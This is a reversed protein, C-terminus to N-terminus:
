NKIGKKSGERGGAERGKKEWKGCGREWRGKIDAGENTSLCASEGVFSYTAERNPM